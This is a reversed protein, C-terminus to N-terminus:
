LERLKQQMKMTLALDHEGGAQDWDINDLRGREAPESSRM